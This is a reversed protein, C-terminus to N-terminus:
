KDYPTIEMKSPYNMKAYPNPIFLNNEEYGSCTREVFKDFNTSLFKTLLSLFNHWIVNRQKKNRKPELHNSIETLISLPEHLITSSKGNIYTTSAICLAKVSPQRVKNQPQM